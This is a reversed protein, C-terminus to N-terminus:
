NALIRPASIRVSNIYSNLGEIVDDLMLAARSCGFAFSLARDVTQEACVAQWILDPDRLGLVRLIAQELCKVKGCMGEIRPEYRLLVGLSEIARKDGTVLLPISRELVIACLQSEGTDLDLGKIQAAYELDAAIRQEEDTPNLRNSRALFEALQDLVTRSDRALTGRKIRRALVFRATALVGVSDANADLSEVLEALLGYCACKYVVDNDVAAIV